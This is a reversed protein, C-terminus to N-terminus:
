GENEAGELIGATVVYVNARRDGGLNVKCQFGRGSQVRLLGRDALTKAVFSPNLGACIEEKWVQPSVWWERESGEGKRWGLRNNVPRSDGDGGVAEFRSEGHLEIVLRVAEIAQRVEGADTGGRADIWQRLAWAAAERAAGNRWPVVGVLTALEGAAAILGLRQAARDVQGDAGAPVEAAVFGSVMARVSEGDVGEAILRRVFEPGATGYASQAAVKIAKSLKGADGEPGAHDFAGCGLGRDAPIDLLRVEQGARARRGRDEALKTAIPIEGTSLVLVRWSKPERLSGDRGSRAKGTGNSLGYVASQADRAEVVGLEDLVLCTDTASSAAGELGNATARWARVYGPSAGRGWVSAGAQLITTKGKSSPGFFNLGGGEQGAIHLLPGALAASIALVALAHDAALAGVGAQWDQLTGRSEYPGHAAGDLIVTESGRPGITEGPLVFLDRDGIRHWGTRSVITVRGKTSVGCLYTALAKQQARNVRLGDSVLSAALSAPEGQLSAEAVHRLHERGDGDRWRLWKGWDRGNPDRTAGLVEFPSCVWENVTEADDGRGKTAEITLGGSGMSFAGWSIFAPGAEFPKLLKVAAARLAALDAWEVVADAADWGAQPERKSGNPAMAALAMADITSVECGLGALVEGVERAYKAGPADADPWILVRRGALPTWDAKSVAQSGGPSTTAISRTFIRGAADASKEGEVIVVPADVNGAIADLSYLPRPAPAAKWKWRVHGLADRWLSLPLIQKREGVPEFRRVIFLVRGQYDHYTWEAVHGGHVPHTAPMSPADSPVPSVIDGADEQAAPFEIM